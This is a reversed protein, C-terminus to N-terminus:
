LSQSRPFQRGDRGHTSASRRSRPDSAGLIAAAADDTVPSTAIHGIARNWPRLSLPSRALDRDVVFSEEPRALLCVRVGAIRADFAVRAASVLRGVQEDLGALDRLRLWGTKLEDVIVANNPLQWVLDFVTGPVAEWEAGLVQWDAGLPIRTFYISTPLLLMQRAAQQYTLVQQALPHAKVAEFIRADTSDVSRLGAIALAQIIEHAGM